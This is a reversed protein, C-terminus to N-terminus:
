GDDDWKSNTHEPIDGINVQGLFRGKAAVSAQLGIRLCSARSKNSVMRVGRLLPGEGGQFSSVTSYTLFHGTASKM